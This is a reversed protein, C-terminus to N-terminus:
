RTPTLAIVSFGCCHHWQTLSSPASHWLKERREARWDGMPGEMPWGLWFEFINSWHFSSSHIPFGFPGPTAYYMMGVFM